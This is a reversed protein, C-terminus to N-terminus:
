RLHFTLLGSPQPGADLVVLISVPLRDPAHDLRGSTSSGCGSCCPNFCNRRILTPADGARQPGADLVVLISVRAGPKPELLRQPQPGADLVVLISVRVFRRAFINRLLQPGADLVVLISVRVGRVMHFTAPRLQPGADLVVLISVVVEAQFPLLVDPNLVRM